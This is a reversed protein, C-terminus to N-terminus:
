MDASILNYGVITAPYKKVDVVKPITNTLGVLAANARELNTFILDRVLRIQGNARRCSVFYKRVKTSEKVIM